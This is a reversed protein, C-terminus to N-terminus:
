TLIPIYCKFDSTTSDTYQRADEEVEEEVEAIM